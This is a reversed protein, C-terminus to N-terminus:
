MRNPVSSGSMAFSKPQDVPKLVNRAVHTDTPV